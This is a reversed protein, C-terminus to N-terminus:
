QKARCLSHFKMCPQDLHMEHINVVIAALSLGQHIQSTGKATKLRWQETAGLALYLAAAFVDGHVPALAGIRTAKNM